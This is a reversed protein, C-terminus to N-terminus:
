HSTKLIKSVTTQDDRYDLKLIGWYINFYIIYDQALFSRYLTQENKDLVNM